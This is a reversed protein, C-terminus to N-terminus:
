RGVMFLGLGIADVANNRKSKAVKKLELEVIAQEVRTLKALIRPQHIAKPTSGKWKQPEVYRTYIGREKFGGAWEGATLALTVIDNPNKTRGGPYIRPREILVEAIHLDLPLSHPPESIGCRFLCRNVTFLAWGSCAGPDIALYM